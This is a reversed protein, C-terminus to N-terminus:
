AMSASLFDRVGALREATPLAQAARYLERLDAGASFGEERASSIILAHTTNSCDSRPSSNSSSPSRPRGIENCPARDLSLEIAGEAVRWSFTKGQFSKM